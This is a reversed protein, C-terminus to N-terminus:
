AEVCDLNVLNKFVVFDSHLFPGFIFLAPAEIENEEIQSSINEITSLLTKEEPLTGKSIVAVPYDLPKYQKFITCIENIKGLGM